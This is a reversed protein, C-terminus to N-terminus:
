FKEEAYKKAWTNLAELRADSRMNAFDLMKIAVMMVHDEFDRERIWRWFGTDVDVVPIGKNKGFNCILQGDKLLILSSPGFWLKREPDLEDWPKGVLDFTELQAKLVERTANTDQLAGHAGEFGARDVFRRYANMLHREERPECVDWVRKTCVLIPWIPPTMLNNIREFEAAIMGKDFFPNHGIIAEANQILAHLQPAIDAFKPAGAVTVDTIGTIETIKEPIPCEPDIYTRLLVAGSDFDVVAIETIRCIKPDLGTTETDLVIASM